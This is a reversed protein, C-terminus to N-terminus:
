EAAGGWVQTYTSTSFDSFQVQFTVCAGAPLEAGGAPAGNPESVDMADAPVEGYTVPGAFGGPFATTQVGWYVAGGTVTGPGLPLTAGPETVYAALANPMAGWDIIPHGDETLEVALAHTGTVEEPCGEAPREFRFEVGEQEFGPGSIRMEGEAHDVVGDGDEDVVVIQTPWASAFSTGAIPVPIAPWQLSEGDLILDVEVSLDEGMPLTARAGFRTAVVQMPVDIATTVDPDLRENARDFAPFLVRWRYEGEIQLAPEDQTTFPVEVMGGLPQEGFFAFTQDVRVAYNRDPNLPETPSVTVYRGEGTVQVSVMSDTDDVMTIRAMNEASPEVPLAFILSIPEGLAAIEGARPTSTLLFGDRPTLEELYRTLDARQGDDLELSLWSVKEDVTEALTRPNGSKLWYGYRYAGVLSPIDTIGPTVGSPLVARSTTLEGAHCGACQGLGRFIDEGRKASETMSGDRLTAGNQQPPPVLASVYAALGEAELANPNKGITSGVTVAFNDASDLYGEWGLPYTGELWFFPRTVAWLEFPGAKWVNGDMIADNHCSNCTHDVGYGEGPATFYAQGVAVEPSRPDGDLASTGADAGGFRTIAFGQVGHVFLEAGIHTVSRPRGPADFRTREALTEPDLGIVLDSGEIAVWIAGGAMTLGHPTVAWGASSDQRSLDARVLEAGDLDYAVVEHTFSGAELDALSVRPNSDTTAVYLRGDAVLLHNIVSGVAEIYDVVEGLEGARTDVIAVDFIDGRPDEGFPYRDAVASRRSAVFLRGSAADLAMAQADANTEIYGQVARQEVDVVAIAGAVPLSVYATAGDPTLVVHSPEDGVWIADILRGSARDVIGLTDGAKHTVLAVDAGEVWALSSPWPGTRVRGLEELNSPDLRVIEPAFVQAVWLEDGVPLVSQIPYYNFHEFPADAVVNLEFAEDTAPHSFRWAGPTTPTIRDWGDAGAVVTNQGPGAEVQWTGVCGEGAIQPLYFTGGAVFRETPQRELASVTCQPSPTTNSTSEDCGGLVALSLTIIGASRAASELRM